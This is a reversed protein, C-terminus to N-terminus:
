YGFLAAKVVGSVYGNKLGRSYNGTNYASLAALLAAQDSPLTRAAQVYNRTLVTGGAYVNTCPDFVREVTLGLSSMTKSNIQMLGMDINAGSAILRKSEAVAEEYSSAKRYRQSGNVNIAWPNGRSEQHIVALMTNASVFPACAMVLTILDMVPGTTDGCLSEPGHGHAPLLGNPGAGSHSGFAPLRALLRM